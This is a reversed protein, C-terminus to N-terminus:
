VHNIINGSIQEIPSTPITFWYPTDRFSNEKKGQGQCSPVDQRIALFSHSSLNRPVNFSRLMGGPMHKLHHAQQRDPSVKGLLSRGVGSEVHSLKLNARCEHPWTGPKAHDWGPFWRPHVDLCSCVSCKFVLSPLFLSFIPFISFTLSTLLKLIEM